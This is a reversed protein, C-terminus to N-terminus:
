RPQAELLGNAEGRSRMLECQAATLRTNEPATEARMLNGPENSHDGSNSLVHVLEHALAYPLDRAGHAVWVTNALEIRHKSNALGIAEADFAPNNRTDEVFFVAPKPTDIHRLLERSVPTYYYQFRAPANIVRLEAASLTIGCQALLRASGVVAEAIEDLSWRTGRFTYAYLKLHHTGNPLVGLTKKLDMPRVEVVAVPEAAYGLAPLAAFLLAIARIFRLASM